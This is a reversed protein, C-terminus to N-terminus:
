DRASARAGGHVAPQTSVVSGLQAPGLSRIASMIDLPIPIITSNREGAMEVMSQLYRLHV